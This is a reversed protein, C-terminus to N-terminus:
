FKSFLDKKKLRRIINTYSFIWYQGVMLCPLTCTCQPYSEWVIVHCSWYFYERLAEYRGKKQPWKHIIRARFAWIGSHVMILGLICIVNYKFWNAVACIQIWVHQYSCPKVNPSFRLIWEWQSEGKSSKAIIISEQLTLLICQTHLIWLNEELLNALICYSELLMFLNRGRFHIYSHLGLICILTVCANDSHDTQIIWLYHKSFAM